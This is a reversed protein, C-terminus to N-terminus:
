PLIQYKALMNNFMQLRCAYIVTVHDLKLIYVRYREM